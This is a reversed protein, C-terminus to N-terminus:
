TEKTKNRATSRPITQSRVKRCLNSPVLTSLCCFHVFNNVPLSPLPLTRFEDYIQPEYICAYNSYHRVASQVVQTRYEASAFCKEELRQTWVLESAWGAEQRIPVPPGKGPYLADPAHRQGNVRGGGWRTGLDLILFLQYITDRGRPEQM